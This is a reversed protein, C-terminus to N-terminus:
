SRPGGVPFSQASARTTALNATQVYPLNSLLHLTREPSQTFIPSSLVMMMDAQEGTAMDRSVRLLANVVLQPPVNLPIGIINRLENRALGMRYKVSQDMAIWRPNERLEGALFELAIIARAANIPNGRTNAPSAFAWAALNIAGIDNDEYIGYVGPPLEPTAQTGPLSGCASVSLALMSVFGLRSVYGFARM